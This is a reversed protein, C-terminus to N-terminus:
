CIRKRAARDHLVRWLAYAAGLPLSFSLLWPGYQGDRALSGGFLQLWREDFYTEGTTWNIVVRGVGLLSVAVWLWRRAPAMALVVGAVVLTFVVCLIASVLVAYHRVRKGGLTFENLAQLSGPMAQARLGTVRRLGASDSVEVIAVVWTSDKHSEFTVTSYRVSPTSLMTFGVVTASDLPPQSALLDRVHVLQTRTAVGQMSSHTLALVSDLNGSRVLSLYNRGAMILDAPPSSNCGVSWLTIAGLAALYRVGMGEYERAQPTRPTVIDVLEAKALLAAAM